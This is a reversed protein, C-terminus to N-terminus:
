AVAMIEPEYCAGPLMTEQKRKKERARKSADSWCQRCTRAGNTVAIYTNDPTWEHGRKCHTRARRAAAAANIATELYASPARQMNVEHTVPELHLFNWCNRRRCLHDIELGESIPGVHIEYSLRHVKVTKGDVGIIGYGDKDLGKGWFWCPYGNWELEPIIVLGEYLRDEVSRTYRNTKHLQWSRRNM